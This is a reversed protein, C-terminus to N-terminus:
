DGVLLLPAFFANLKGCYRGIPARIHPRKQLPFAGYLEDINAAASFPQFSMQRTGNGDWQEFEIGFGMRDIWRLPAQHIATLSVTSRGCRTKQQTLTRTIDTNQDVADFAPRGV